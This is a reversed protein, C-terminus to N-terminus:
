NSDVFSLVGMLLDAQRAVIQTSLGQRDRPELGRRM